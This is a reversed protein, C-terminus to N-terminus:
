AGELRGALAELRAACAELQEAIDDGQDQGNGAPTEAGAKAARDLAKRAEFLDDAIMLTALLLLRSEGIRGVSDALERVREDIYAGLGRVHAEQGDDCAVEYERGMVTLNIQAM